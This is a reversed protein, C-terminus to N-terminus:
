KNSRQKIRQVTFGGGEPRALDVQIFVDADKHQMMARSGMWHTDLGVESFRKLFLNYEMTWLSGAPSDFTAELARYLVMSVSCDQGHRAIAEVKFLYGGKSRYKKNVEIEYIM